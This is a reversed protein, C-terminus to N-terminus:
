QTNLTLRRTQNTGRPDNRHIFPKEAKTPRTVAARRPSLFISQSKLIRYRMRRVAGAEVRM